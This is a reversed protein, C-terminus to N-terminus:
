AIIDHFARQQQQAELQSDLARLGLRIALQIHAHFIKHHEITRKSWSPSRVEFVLRQRFSIVDGHRGMETLEDAPLVVGRRIVQPFASCANSCCRASWPQQLSIEIGDSVTRGNCREAFRRIM